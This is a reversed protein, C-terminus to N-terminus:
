ATAQLPEGSPEYSAAPASEVNPEDAKVDKPKPEPAVDKEGEITTGIKHKEHAKEGEGEPAATESTPAKTSGHEEADKGAGNPNSLDDALITNWKTLLNVSREQFKYEDDKPISTLKLM